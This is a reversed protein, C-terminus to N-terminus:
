ADAPAAGNAPSEAVETTVLSILTQGATPRLEGDAVVVSLRGSDSLLFLPVATAGYRTQFDEFTFADTLRTAKVTAGGGFRRGLEAYTAESDFLWRGHLHKHATKESPQDGRPALQYCNAAGFVRTFRQVALTNIWDNPTVALLRGLGGLNIEDMAYDALISGSYTRIGDMRATSTHYRNSDVLLVPIDREMLLKALARTWGQAGVILLGQPNADAVGLRRAVLPATLGYIAVTGIITLFTVPVILEAGAVNAAELRLAFLSAVAAAVIGRPAMWGLFLREPRALESGLCAVGTAVPRAILVLVAVFLAGRWGVQVIQQPDLRAALIIFLASILLVRLHEKFEVIHRVDALKQNALVIGMVTVTVLGAEHQTLNAATFAAVVLMLSVANQLFDPVWYRRLVIALGYGAVVGLGGGIVVTKAISWVLGSTAHHDGTAHLVEFVLVALVAGIPDIVIGEWKLVPGVGGTPRIHRLLPGIVTPGTVVLIAGLLLAAGISMGFILYAAAASIAWTLAAGISCLWLVVRGSHRLDSWRLTLGGEYLILAVSISVFPFLIDDFRKDPQLIGVWGATFGFLLLLLISPLGLRTAIWQAGVGLVVVGTIELLVQESVTGEAL